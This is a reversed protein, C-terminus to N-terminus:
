IYPNEKKIKQVKQYVYYPNLEAHSCVTLFDKNNLNCWLISRVRNIKAMKKNSRSGLDVLAQMIVAKWLCVGSEKTTIEESLRYQNDYNNAISGYKSIFRTENRSKIDLDSM